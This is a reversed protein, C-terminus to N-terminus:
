LCYFPYEKGDPAEATPEDAPSGSTENTCWFDDTRDGSPGCKM